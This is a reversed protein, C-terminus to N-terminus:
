IRFRFRLKEYTPVPVTFFSNRNWLVPEPLHHRGAGGPTLRWGERHRAGAASRRLARVVGGILPSRRSPAAVGPVVPRRVADRGRLTARQLVAHLLVRRPQQGGIGAAGLCLGHHRCRGGRMAVLHSKKLTRM